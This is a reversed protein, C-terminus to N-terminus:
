AEEVLDPDHVTVVADLERLRATGQEIEYWQRKTLSNGTRSYMIVKWEGTVNLKNKYGDEHNWNGNAIWKGKPGLLRFNEKVRGTEIVDRHGDSEVPGWLVEVIRPVSIGQDLRQRRILKAM